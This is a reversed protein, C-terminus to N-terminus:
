EPDLDEATGPTVTINLLIDGSIKAKTKKEGDGLLFWFTHSGERLRFFANGPIMIMGMFDPDSSSNQSFIKVKLPKMEAETILGMDFSRPDWSPNLSQSKDNSQFTENKFHIVYYYDPIVM